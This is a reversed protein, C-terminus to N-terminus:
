RRSLIIQKDKIKYDIPSCYKIVEMIQVISESKFQATIKCSLISRDKVLFETGHWRELKKLVEDIPTEEFILTGNKWAISKLTDAKQIVRISHNNEIIVSQLPKLEKVYDRRYGGNPSTLKISGSFLTAQADNDEEYSRILFKTGLVEIKLGKSTTVVMATDPNSKVEFYAEGSIKVERYKGTFREPYTLKTDSNLWVVSNDPLTVVGKVGKNTYFSLTNMKRTKSFIGDSNSVEDRGSYYQYINLGIAVVLLISAAVRVFSFRIINQVESSLFKKRFFVFERKKAQENPLSSIVYLNKLGLFYKKNAEDMNIWFLIQEQEASSAKGEIFKILLQKRMIHSSM